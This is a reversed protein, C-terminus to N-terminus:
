CSRDSLLNLCYGRRTLAAWRPMRRPPGRRVELAAVCRRTRACGAKSRRAAGRANGEGGEASPERAGSNRRTCARPMKDSGIDATLPSGGAAASRARSQRGRLHNAPFLRTLGRPTNGNCRGQKQRNRM